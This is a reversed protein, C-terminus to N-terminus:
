LVMRRGTLVYLAMSPSADQEEVLELEVYTPFQGSRFREYDAEEQRTPLDLGDMLRKGKRLETVNDDSGIVTSGM